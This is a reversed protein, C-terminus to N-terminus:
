KKGKGAAAAPPPQAATKEERDDEDDSDDDRLTEMELTDELQTDFDDGDTAAGSAHLQSFQSADVAAGRRRDSWARRCVAYLRELLVVSVILIPILWWHSWSSESSEAPLICLPPDVASAQHCVEPPRCQLSECSAATHNHNM